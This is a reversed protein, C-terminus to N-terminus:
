RRAAAVRRIGPAPPAACALERVELAYAVAREPTLRLLEEDALAGLEAAYRAAPPPGYDATASRGSTWPTGTVMEYFAKIM